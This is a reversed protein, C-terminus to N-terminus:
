SYCYKQEPLLQNMSKRDKLCNGAKPENFKLYQTSCFPNSTIDLYKVTDISGDILEDSVSVNNTLM